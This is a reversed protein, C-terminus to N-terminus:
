MNFARNRFKKHGCFHFVSNISMTFISISSRYRRLCENADMDRVNLEMFDVLFDIFFDSYLM